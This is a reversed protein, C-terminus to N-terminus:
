NLCLKGYKRQFRNMPSNLVKILDKIVRMARENTEWEYDKSREHGYRVCIGVTEMGSLGSEEAFPIVITEMESRIDDVRMKLSM